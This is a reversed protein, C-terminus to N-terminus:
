REKRRRSLLIPHTGLYRGPIIEGTGSLYPRCPVRQGQYHVYLGDVDRKLVREIRCYHPFIVTVKRGVREEM